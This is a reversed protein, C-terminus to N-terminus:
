RNLPQLKAAASSRSGSLVIRPRERPFAILTSRDTVKVPILNGFGKRNDEAGGVSDSLLMVRAKSAPQPPTTVLVIPRCGTTLTRPGLVFNRRESTSEGVIDMFFRGPVASCEEQFQSSIESLGSSQHTGRMPRMLFANGSRASTAEMM